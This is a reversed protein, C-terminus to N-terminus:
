DTVRITITRDLVVGPGLTDLAGDGNWDCGDALNRNLGVISQLIHNGPALRGLGFTWTTIATPRKPRGRLQCEAAPEGREPRGWGVNPSSTSFIVSRDLTHQQSTALIHLRVIGPTAAKWGWRVVVLQSRSVTVESPSFFPNIYVTDGATQATTDMGSAENHALAPQSTLVLSVFIVLVVLVSAIRHIM